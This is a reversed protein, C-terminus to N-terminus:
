PTTPVTMSPLNPKRNALARDSAVPQLSGLLDSGQVTLQQRVSVPMAHIVLGISSVRVSL